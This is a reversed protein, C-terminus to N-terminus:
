YALAARLPAGGCALMSTDIDFFKINGLRDLFGLSLAALAGFQRGVPNDLLQALEGARVHGIVHLGAGAAVGVEIKRSKGAVLRRREVLHGDLIIDVARPRCSSPASSRSSIGPANHVRASISAARGGIPNTSGSSIRTTTAM